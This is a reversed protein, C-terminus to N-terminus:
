GYKETLVKTDTSIKQDLIKAYHQTTKIDKHGLMKSVSEISVGNTLAVTTAFTHRAIHFTLKKNIGCADAIEKLYANMKQNSLIPLLTNKAACIPHGLYKGLVDFAPKLLPIRSPTNTKQRNILIWKRGDIGQQIDTLKLKTVDVYALGTFCSFLFVDRVFTLRDISFLKNALRRLEEENLFCRETDTKRMKFSIFPDRKLWGNKVCILIIKKFNALYKMTTNQNCGRNAKLWIEYDCIFDHTIEQIAIDNRRYKDWLFSKTHKLSTEYRDVTGPAFDIGVLSKIQQNHNEFIAILSKRKQKQGRWEERFSSVNLVADKAIIRKQTEFVRTRFLELQYNVARASEKTGRMKGSARSWLAPDISINTSVDFRKGDITVRMYAKSKGADEVDKRLYFLVTM